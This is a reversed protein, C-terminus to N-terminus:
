RLKAGIAKGYTLPVVKHAFFNVVPRGPWPLPRVIDVILIVRVSDAKNIVEHEWSDDFFFGTGDQWTHFQDKVRIIL